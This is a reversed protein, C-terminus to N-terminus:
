RQRIEEVLQEGQRIAAVAGAQIPAATGSNIYQTMAGLQDAVGSPHTLWGIRWGTMAWAKSFSNVSLVRDGDEAIQLI